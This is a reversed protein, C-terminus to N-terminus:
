IEYYHFTGAHINRWKDRENEEKRHWVLFESFFLKRNDIGSTDEVSCYCLGIYVLPLDFINENQKETKIKVITDLNKLSANELYLM